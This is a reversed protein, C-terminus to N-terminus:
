AAHYEEWKSTDDNWKEVFICGCTHPQLMRRLVMVEEAEHAYFTAHLDDIICRVAYRPHRRLGLPLDNHDAPGFATDTM